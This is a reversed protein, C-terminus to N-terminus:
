SHSAHASVKACAVDYQSVANPNGSNQPQTGAYKTGATGNSNFASGPASSAHGPSSPQAQCSQNPQGTAGASLPGGLAAALGLGLSCALATGRIVLTSRRM